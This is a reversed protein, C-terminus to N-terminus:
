SKSDFTQTSIDLPITLVEGDRWVAISMSHRGLRRADDILTRLIEPSTIATREPLSSVLVDGRKWLSQVDSRTSAVWTVARDSEKYLALVTGDALTLSGSSLPRAANSTLGLSSLGLSLVPASAASNLYISAAALCGMLTLSAYLKPSRSKSVSQAADQFHRLPRLAENIEPEVPGTDDEHVLQKILDQSPDSKQRGARNPIRQGKQLQRWEKVTQPREIPFLGLARDIAELFGREYGRAQLAIPRYPDDMGSGVALVREQANPPPYGVIAHHLSAALSYLDSAFHMDDTSSYFEQPSYGDKVMRMASLKRSTAIAVQRAAGFDILVPESEDTLLINDPSIDRHLVDSAHITAVADILKTAIATVKEPPLPKTREALLSALDRGEVYDLVMYATNNDDFVQHVKVIFRFGPPTRREM